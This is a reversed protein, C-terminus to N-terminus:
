PNRRGMGTKDRATVEHRKETPRVTEASESGRSPLRDIDLEVDGPSGGEDGVESTVAEIETTDGATRKESEHNMAGGNRGADVDEDLEDEGDFEDDAAVIEEDPHGVVEEDRTREKAM